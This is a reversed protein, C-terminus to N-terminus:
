NSNILRQICDKLKEKPRLEKELCRHKARYYFYKQKKKNHPSTPQPTPTLTPSTEILKSETLTATQVLAGRQEKSSPHFVSCATFAFVTLGIFFVRYM